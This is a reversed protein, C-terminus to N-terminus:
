NKEKRANWCVLATEAEYSSRGKATCNMCMVDFTRVDQGYESKTAILRTMLKPEGGCFPCPKLPLSMPREKLPAQCSKRVFKM